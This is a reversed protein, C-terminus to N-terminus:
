SAASTASAEYLYRQFGIVLGRIQEPDGLDALAAITSEPM